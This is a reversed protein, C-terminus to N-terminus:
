EKREFYSSLVEKAIPAAIDSGQGSEEVLVTVVIEPNQSPAYATFWAHPIKSKEHSEATGTKCAVQIRQRNATFEFLPWGTGGVTCAETMGQKVLDLTKQNLGLKTCEPQTDAPNTMGHPSNTKLLKPKCLAGNNAIVATAQAVQLPTVLMYGQGISFNYTDGLYWNEKLVEEKWFESPILGDAEELQIGTSQGYGFKEAWRKIEDAGLREGVKYFYIDNSRQLAKTINM